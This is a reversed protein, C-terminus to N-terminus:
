LLPSLAHLERNGVGERVLVLIQVLPQGLGRLQPSRDAVGGLGYRTLSRKSRSRM